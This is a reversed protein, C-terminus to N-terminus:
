EPDCIVTALPNNRLPTRGGVGDLLDQKAAECSLGAMPGTFRHQFEVQCDDKATTTCMQILLLLAGMDM